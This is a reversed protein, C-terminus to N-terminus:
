HNPEDQPSVIGPRHGQLRPQVRLSGLHLYPLLGLARTVEQLLPDHPFGEPPPVNAFIFIFFVLALQSGFLHSPQTTPIIVGGQLNKLPELPASGAGM